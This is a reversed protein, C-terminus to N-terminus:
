LRTRKEIVLRFCALYIEFTYYYYSVDSATTHNFGFLLMQINFELDISLNKM